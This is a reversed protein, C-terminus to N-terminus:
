QTLSEDLTITRWSGTMRGDKRVAAMGTSANVREPPIASLKEYVTRTTPHSPGLTKCCISYSAGYAERAKEYDSLKMYLMGVNQWGCAVDPHERGLESSCLTIYKMSHNLADNIREQFYLLRGMTNLVAFYRTDKTGFVTKASALLEICFAEAAEYDNQASTIGILTDLCYRYRADNSEKFLKAFDVFVRRAKELDGERRLQQATEKLQAFDIDQQNGMALQELKQTKKFGALRLEQMGQEVSINHTQAYNFLVSVSNFDLGELHLQYCRTSRELSSDDFVGSIALIQRVIQPNKLAQEIAQNLDVDSLTGLLKLFNGLTLSSSVKSELQKNKQEKYAQALAMGNRLAVLIPKADALKLDGRGIDSQVFLVSDLQASSLIKQETLVVGIPKLSILSQEIAQTLQRESLFGALVLLDGLMPASSSQLEYFGKSTPTAVTAIERARSERLAQYGNARTLTGERILAQINLATALLRESIDGTAVLIRGIPLNTKSQESLAFNLRDRSLVKSEVLLEGIATLQEPTIPDWGLEFLAQDISKNTGLVNKVARIAVSMELIEERLLTQCRLLNTMDAPTIHGSLVLVQGLPMGTDAALNLAEEVQEPRLVGLQILLDGLKYSQRVSVV